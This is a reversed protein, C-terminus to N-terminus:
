EAYRNLISRLESYEKNKADQDDCVRSHSFDIITLGSDAM